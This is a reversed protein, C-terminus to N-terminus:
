GGRKPILKSRRIEANSRALMPPIRPKDRQDLKRNFYEAAATAEKPLPPTVDGVMARSVLTERFARDDTAYPDVGKRFNKERWQQMEPTLPFKPDFKEETMLHRAAELRILAERKVPDINHPTYPNTVIYREPSDDGNAGMGVAMGAVDPRSRFYDEYGSATADKVAYGFRSESKVPLPDRFKPFPKPM